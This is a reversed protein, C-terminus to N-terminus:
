RGHREHRIKPIIETSRQGVGCVTHDKPSLLCTKNMIIKLAEM